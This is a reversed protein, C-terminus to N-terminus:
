TLERPVGVTLPLSDPAIEGLNLTPLSLTAQELVFEMRLRVLHGDVVEERIKEPKGDRSRRALTVCYVYVHSGSGSRCYTWAISKPGRENNM